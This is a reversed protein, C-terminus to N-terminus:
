RDRVWEHSAEAELAERSQQLISTAVSHPVGILYPVEFLAPLAARLVAAADERLRDRDIENFPKDFPNTADWLNPDLAKAAAEVAREWQTLDDM